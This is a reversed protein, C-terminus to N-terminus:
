GFLEELDAPKLQKLFGSETHIIDKAVAQKKKQLELIKEEITNKCIMKYAFVQRTQGIRHTRDIAQQEVAPNWWPDILFVYNAESLNLGFGGAKLSILFVQKEDNTRFEEVLAERDRSQGTLKVHGIGTQDLKEEVLKLMGTFFSFVLVKHGEAVIEGLMQMLREMKTSEPNFQGEKEALLAPSNCIQRLKLLGELIYVGAKHFGDTQIKKALLDRYKQRFHDYIKRQEAGMECFLITETKEPLDKAVDQK